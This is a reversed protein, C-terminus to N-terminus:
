IMVKQKSVMLWTCFSSLKSDSLQEFVLVVQNSILKKNLNSIFVDTVAVLYMYM